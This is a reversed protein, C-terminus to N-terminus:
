TEEDSLDGRLFREAHESCLRARPIGPADVIQACADCLKRYCLTGPGQLPWECGTTPTGGCTLCIDNM